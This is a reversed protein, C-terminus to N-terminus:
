KRCGDGDDGCWGIHKRTYECVEFEATGMVCEQQAETCTICNSNLETCSGRGYQRNCDCGGYEDPTNFVHGVEHAYVRDINDTGWGDNSYEMFTPGGGFYAYAFHFQKYKTIFSVFAGTAGSMEMIVDEIQGILSDGTFGLSEIAPVAYHNHCQEYSTCEESDEVDIDVVARYLTFDLEVADPAQEAWFDLGTIAQSVANEVEDECFAIDPTPGSPMILAVAIKGTMTLKTSARHPSLRPLAHSAENAWNHVKSREAARMQVSKKYAKAYNLTSSSASEPVETLASQLHDKVKGHIKAVVLEKGLYLLVKGGMSTVEKVTADADNTYLLVKEMPSKGPPEPRSFSHSIIIM